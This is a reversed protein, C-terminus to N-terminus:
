EEVEKWRAFDFEFRHVTPDMTSLTKNDRCDRCRGTCQYKCISCYHYMAMVANLLADREAEAKEAKVDALNRVSTLEAFLEDRENILIDIKDDAIRLENETDKLKLEANEARLRQINYENRCDNACKEAVELSDIILMGMKGIQGYSTFSYNKGSDSFSTFINKLEQLREPTM